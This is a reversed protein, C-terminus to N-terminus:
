KELFDESATSTIWISKRIHNRWNGDQYGEPYLLIPTDQSPHHREITNSLVEIREKSCSQHRGLEGHKSTEEVSDAHITCSATSEPRSEWSRQTRQGHSECSSLISDTKQEFESRGTNIRFKHHFTFQNCMWRSLHVRLFRGCNICQGTIFSWHSQTRFSRSSSSIFFKKDQHFLLINFDKRTAEAEQWAERGSKTLGIIVICSIIRFIIKSEGSNLREMMTELYVETVFFIFWNRRCQIIPFRIIKHNMVFSVSSNECNVSYTAQRSYVTVREEGSEEQTRKSM